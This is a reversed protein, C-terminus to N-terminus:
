ARARHVRPGSAKVPTLVGTNMNDTALYNAPFGPGPCIPPARQLRVADGVLVHDRDHLAGYVTDVTDNTGDTIYLAGQRATAWATDDVSAPLHLM